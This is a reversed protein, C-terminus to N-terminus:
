GVIYTKKGTAYSRNNATFVPIYKTRHSVGDKLLRGCRCNGETSATFHEMKKMDPQKTSFTIPETSILTAIYRPCERLPKNYSLKISKIAKDDSTDLFKEYQAPHSCKRKCSVCRFTTENGRVAQKMCCKENDLQYLVVHPNTSVIDM